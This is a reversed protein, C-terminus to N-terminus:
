LLEYQKDKKKQRREEIQACVKFVKSDLPLNEMKSLLHLREDTIINNKMHFSDVISKSKECSDIVGIYPINSKLLSMLYESHSEINDSVVVAADFHKEVVKLSSKNNDLLIIEDALKMDKFNKGKKDCLLTQWGLSDAVKVLERSGKSTGLILLKVPSDIREYFLNSNGDFYNNEEDFNPTFSHAGPNKTSRILTSEVGDNINQLAKGISGYNNEYYFPELWCRILGSQFLEKSFISNSASQKTNYVVYRGKKRNLVEKLYSLIYKEFKSDNSFGISEQASNIFLTMESKSSKTKRIDFVNICLIDEKQTQSKQIFKIFKKNTFM